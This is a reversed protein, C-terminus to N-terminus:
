YPLSAHAIVNQQPKGGVVLMGDHKRTVSTSSLPTAVILVLFKRSLDDFAAPIRSHRKRALADSM